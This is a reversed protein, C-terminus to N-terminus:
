RVPDKLPDTRTVVPQAAASSGGMRHIMVAQFRGTVDSLSLMMVGLPAAVIERPRIIAAQRPRTGNTAYSQAMQEASLPTVTVRSGEAAQALGNIFLTFQHELEVVNVGGVWVECTAPDSWSVCAPAASPRIYIAANDHRVSERLRNPMAERRM